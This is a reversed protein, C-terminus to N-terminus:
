GNHDEREPIMDGFLDMIERNAKVLNKVLVNIAAANGSLEAIAEDFKNYYLSFKEELLKKKEQLDDTQALQTDLSQIGSHMGTLINAVGSKNLEVKEFYKDPKM